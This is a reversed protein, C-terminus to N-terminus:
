LDNRKMGDIRLCASNLLCHIQQRAALHQGNGGIRAIGQHAVDVVLGGAVPQALQAPHIGFVVQSQQATIQALQGVIGTHVIPLVAQELLARGPGEGENQFGRFFHWAAQAVGRAFGNPQAHRLVRHQAAQQLRM